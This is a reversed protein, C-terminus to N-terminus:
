DLRRVYGDLHFVKSENDDPCNIFEDANEEFLTNMRLMELIFLSGVISVLNFLSAEKFNALRDHKVSNYAEWWALTKSPHGRDWGRFPTLVIETGKIRISQTLLNPFMALTRDYYDGITTRDVLGCLEKFVNDVESGAELIIKLFKTSYVNFHDTSLEVYISCDLIDDELDRYQSWFYKSYESITM